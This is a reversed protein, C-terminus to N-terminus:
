MLVHMTGMFSLLARGEAIDYQNYFIMDNGRSNQSIKGTVYAIIKETAYEASTTLLTFLTGDATNRYFVTQGDIIHLKPESLFAALTLEGLVM